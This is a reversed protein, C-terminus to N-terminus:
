TALTGRVYAGHPNAVAVGDRVPLNPGGGLRARRGDAVNGAGTAGAAAATAADRGDALDQLLRGAAAQGHDRASWDGGLSGPKSM